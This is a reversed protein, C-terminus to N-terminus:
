RILGVALNNTENSEAVNNDPDIVAIVYSPQPGTRRPPTAFVFLKASAGPKLAPVRLTQVLTDGTNYQDDQSLYVRARTTPSATLGTNPVVLWGILFFKSKAPQWFLMTWSGSLDPLNPPAQVATSQSTANNAPNPDSTTCAVSATNTITGAAGPATVQIIATVSAGNAMDGIACTVIGGAESCTGQTSNASSFITGAPLTDTLTVGIAPGPGSNTVVLTYSLPQGTTVPDPSDTKTLSLDSDLRVFHATVNRAASMTVTAPNDSGTLDGSWHDFRWDPAASATLAVPTGEPYSESCDGPCDIGDATVSGSGMTSVTLTGLVVGTRTAYYLDGLLHRRYSAQPRGSGDVAIDGAVHSWAAYADPDVDEVTWAGPSGTIYKLPYEYAPTPCDHMLIHLGGGSDVAISSPRGGLPLDHFTWAGFGGTAYKPGADTSYVVHLVGTSHLAMWPDPWSNVDSALTEIDWLGGPPKVAHKVTGPPLVGDFYVIHIQGASTVAITSHYGGYEVSNDVTEITWAGLADRVAHKLGAQSNYSIHVLDASDVAIDSDGGVWDSEVTEITWAGPAGFAHMLYYNGGGPYSIHPTNASDVAISTRNSGVGGADVTDLIWVGTANTAYRLDAGTIDFHSIHSKGNGDLAISSYLGVDRTYDVSEIPSWSGGLPKATYRLDFDSDYAWDHYVVHGTGVGDVALAMHKANRPTSADAFETSWGGAPARIACKVQTNPNEFYGYVIRVEVGGGAPEWIALAPLTQRIGSFPGPDSDATEISWLTEGVARTAYKLDGYDLKTVYGIHVRGSSDVAITPSIPKATDDVIETSWAGGDRKAYRLSSPGTTYSNTAYVMHVSVTGPVPEFVALDACGQFQSSDLEVDETSWAGLGGRMYQAGVSRSVFGIHVTGSSDVAVSPQWVDHDVLTEIDWAGANGRAYKVKNLGVYVVHVVGSGDIAIAPTAGVGPADDITEVHWGAANRYAYYLHDGGYAVHPRNSSDVAITGQLWGGDGFNKPADVEEVAWQANAPCVALHVGLIGALIVGGIM